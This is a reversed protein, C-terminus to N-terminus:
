PAPEPSLRLEQWMKVPKGNKRGGIRGLSGSGISLGVGGGSGFSGFGLGGGISLGGGGRGGAAGPLPEIYLGVAFSNRGVRISSLPVKAEYLLAGSANMGIGLEIGEPNAQPYDFAQPTKVAAFGFLMYDGVQQLAMRKDNQLEPRDNLMNDDRRVRNGTPFAIGAAGADDKVGHRNIYVTLGSKLISLITQEDTAVARVYFYLSDNSFAYDLGLKANRYPLSQSWDADNGDINLSDRQWVASREPEGPLNRSTACATALLVIAM